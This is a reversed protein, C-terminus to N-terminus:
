NKQQSCIIHNDHQSASKAVQSRSCAEKHANHRTELYRKTEGIYVKRCTCSVEYVVTAQKQAPLPDKVNTLLSQFTGGTQHQLEQM